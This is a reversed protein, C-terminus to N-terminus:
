PFIQKLAETIQHTYRKETETNPLFHLGDPVYDTLNLDNIGLNDALNILPSGWYKALAIQADVVDTSNVSTANRSHHTIFVTRTQKGLLKRADHIKKYIFNSAGAFYRRDYGAAAPSQFPFTTQGVRDNIGYDFVFLDGAAMNPVLRAEYNKSVLADIHSQLLVFGSGPQLTAYNAASVELGLNAQYLANVDALELSFKYILNSQSYPTNNENFARISGGGFAINVVTAGLKSAVNAPYGGGEPISTGMWIITKNKWVTDTAAVISGVNFGRAPANKPVWAIPQLQQGVFRDVASAAKFGFTYFEVGSGATNTLTIQLGYQAWASRFQGRFDYRRLKSSLQTVRWTDTLATVAVAVGSNLFFATPNSTSQYPGFNGTPAYLFFSAHVYENQRGAGFDFKVNSTGALSASIPFKIAQGNPVRDTIEKNTSVVPAAGLTATYNLDAIIKAGIQDLLPSDGAVADLLEANRAALGLFSRIENISPQTDTILILPAAAYAARGVTSSGDSLRLFKGDVGAPMIVQGWDFRHTADLQVSGRSTCIQNATGVSSAANDSTRTNLTNVQFVGGPDRLIHGVTVWKGVLSAVTDLTHPGYTSTPPAELVVGLQSYIADAAAVPVATIPFLANIAHAQDALAYSPLLNLYKKRTLDLYNIDLKAADISRGIETAVGAVNRYFIFGEGAVASKVAFTDGDVTNPGLVASASAGTLGASATFVRTPAVTYSGKALDYIATLAGGSVVFRFAGGSGTGGTFSGTFTGNTGGSGGTIPGAAIIGNGLAAATSAFYGRFNLSADRADQAALAAASTTVVDNATLIAKADATDRAAIASATAAEATENVYADLWEAETGVFGNDVAIQYASKGDAGTDGQDGDDGKDGKTGRDDTADAIDTVLGLPGLYGGVDPKTGEGGTWDVLQRVRREGDAILATVMSWGNYGRLGSAATPDVEVGSDGNEYIANPM